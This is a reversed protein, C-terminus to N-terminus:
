KVILCPSHPSDWLLLRVLRILPSLQIVQPPLSPHGLRPDSHELSRCTKSVQNASVPFAERTADRELSLMTRRPEPARFIPLLRSLPGDSRLVWDLYKWEAAQTRPMHTTPIM